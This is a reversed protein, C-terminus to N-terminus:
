APLEALQWRDGARQVLLAQLLLLSRLSSVGPSFGWRTFDVCGDACLLPALREKYFPTTAAAHLILHTLQGRQYAKLEDKPLWQATKLSAFFARLTADYGDMDWFLVASQSQWKDCDCIPALM